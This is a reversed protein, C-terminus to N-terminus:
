DEHHDEASEYFDVFMNNQRNLYSESECCVRFHLIELMLKEGTFTNFTGCRDRYQTELAM